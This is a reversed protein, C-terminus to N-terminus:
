RALHARSDEKSPRRRPWRRFAVDEITLDEGCHSCRAAPVLHKGCDAHYLLATARGRGGLWRDGWAMLTIAYPFLDHGKRTLRYECRAPHHSYSRRELIGLDVLHGLRHTLINSAIPLSAQIDEFRRLGFYAASIILPMWRDGVVDAVYALEQRSGRHTGATSPSLRRLAPRSSTVPGPPIRSRLLTRRVSLEGGCEACVLRPRTVHGCRLHRLQAPVSGTRPAWRREWRWAALAVPFLTRGRRTLRYEYRAPSASYRVRELLGQEVLARLRNALTARTAGTRDLFQEFRRVGQFADRMIFVAWRDGIVDMARTVSSTAIHHAVDSV